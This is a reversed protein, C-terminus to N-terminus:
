KSFIGGSIMNEIAGKLKNREEMDPINEQMIQMIVLRENAPILRIKVYSFLNWDKKKYKFGILEKDLLEGWELSTGDPLCHEGAEGIKTAECGPIWLSLGSENTLYSWINETPRDLKIRYVLQYGSHRLSAQLQDHKEDM